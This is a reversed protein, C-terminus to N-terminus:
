DPVYRFIRLIYLQLHFPPCNPQGNWKTRGADLGERPRISKRAISDVGNSQSQDDIISTQSCPMPADTALM